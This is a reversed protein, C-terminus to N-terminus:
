QSQQTALGARERGPGGGTASTAEGTQTGPAKGESELWGQGREGGWPREGQRLAAQGM